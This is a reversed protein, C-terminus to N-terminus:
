KKSGHSKGSEHRVKKRSKVKVIISQIHSVPSGGRSSQFTLTVTVPLGQKRKLANRLARLASASPKVNFSVAGASVVAQSGKGFVVKAPRCKGKLTVLGAKCKTKRSAFVGFKGNQFTLLWGFTGPDGVSMTFTIAGTKQNVTPNGSFSFGSDPVLTPTLTPILVPAASVAFSQQAQAAANYNSDGAQNADITCTGAGIFSVTAGSISCVSSSAGDVAFSVAL